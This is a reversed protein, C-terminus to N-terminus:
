RRARVRQAACPAGTRPQDAPDGAGARSRRVGGHSKSGEVHEAKCYGCENAQPGLDLILSLGRPAM